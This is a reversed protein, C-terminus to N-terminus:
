ADCAPNTWSCLCCIQWSIGHSDKSISRPDRNKPCGQNINGEQSILSLSWPFPFDRLLEGRFTICDTTECFLFNAKYFSQLYGFNPISQANFSFFAQSSFSRCSRVMCLIWTIQFSIQLHISAKVACLRVVTCTVIHNHNAECVHSYM